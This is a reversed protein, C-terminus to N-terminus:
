SLLSRILPRDPTTIRAFTASGLLDYHHRRSRRHGPSGAASGPTAKIILASPDFIPLDDLHHWGVVVGSDRDYDTELLTLLGAVATDVEEEYFDRNEVADYGARRHGRRRGIMQSWPFSENASPASITAANSILQTMM